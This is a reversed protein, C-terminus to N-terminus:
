DIDFSFFLDRVTEDYSIFLITANYKPSNIVANAIQQQLWAGDSPTFAPHESLEMPGIIFSVNPLTGAAAADYFANLGLFSLGRQALGSGPTATIFQEFWALRDVLSIISYIVTASLVCPNDEFNDTDVLKFYAYSIELQSGKVKFSQPLILFCNRHYIMM